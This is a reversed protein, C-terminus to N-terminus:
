KDELLHINEFDGAHHMKQYLFSQTKLQQTM